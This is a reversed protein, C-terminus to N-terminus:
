SERTPQGPDVPALMKNGVCNSKSTLLTDFTLDFKAHAVLDEAGSRVTVTGTSRALAQVPDTGGDALAKNEGHNGRIAM